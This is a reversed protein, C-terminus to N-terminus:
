CSNVWQDHIESNNQANLANIKGSAVFEINPQGPREIESMVKAMARGYVIIVASKSSIETTTRMTLTKEIDNQSM